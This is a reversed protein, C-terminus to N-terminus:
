RNGLNSGISSCRLTKMADPDYVGPLGNFRNRRISRRWLGLSFSPSFSLTGSVGAYQDSLRSRVKALPEELKDSDLHAHRM